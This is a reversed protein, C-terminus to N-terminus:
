SLKIPSASLLSHLVSADATSLNFLYPSIFRNPVYVHLVYYVASSLHLPLTEEYRSPCISFIVQEQHLHIIIREQHKQGILIDTSIYPTSYIPIKKENNGAFVVSVVFRVIKHRSLSFIM